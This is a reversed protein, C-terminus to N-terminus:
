VSINQNINLSAIKKEKNANKKFAKLAEFTNKMSILKM